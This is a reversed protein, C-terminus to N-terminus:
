TSMPRAVIFGSRRDVARHQLHERVADHRSEHEGHDARDVVLRVRALHRDEAAQRALHREEHEEEDDGAQRRTPKGPKEPKTASNLM